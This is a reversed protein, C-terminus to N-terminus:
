SMQQGTPGVTVSSREFVQCREDVFLKATECRTMEALFSLTM